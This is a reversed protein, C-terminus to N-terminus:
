KCEVYVSFISDNRTEVHSRSKAYTGIEDPRQDCVIATDKWGIGHPETGMWTAKGESSHKVCQYCKTGEKQCSALIAVLVAAIIIKKM